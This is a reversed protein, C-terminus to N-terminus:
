HFIITERACAVVAPLDWRVLDDYGWDRGGEPLTGACRPYVPYCAAPTLVVGTMKQFSSWDGGEHVRALLAAQDRDKGEFSFVTGALQPFSELYGSQEFDQRPLAPPFRWVEAGEGAGAATVLAEIGSVIREFAASRGYVGQASSPLLLRQAILEDLFAKQNEADGLPERM